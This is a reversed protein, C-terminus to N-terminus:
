EGQDEDDSFSDMFAVGVKYFVNGELYHKAAKSLAAKGGNFWREKNLLQEIQSLAEDANM